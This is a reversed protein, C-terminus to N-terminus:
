TFIVQYLFGDDVQGVPVMFLEFRGLADHELTHIRQELFPEQPGRFVLSFAQREAQGAGDGLTEVETLELEAQAEETSVRFTENLHPKFLEWTLDELM